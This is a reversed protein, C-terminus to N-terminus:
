QFKSEDIQMQESKRGEAANRRARSLESEDLLEEEQLLEGVEEDSSSKDEMIPIRDSEPFKDDDTKIRYGFIDHEGQMGFKARLKMLILEITAKMTACKKEDLQVNIASVSKELEQQLAWFQTDVSSASESSTIVICSPVQSAHEKQINNKLGLSTTQEQDIKSAVRQLKLTQDHLFANLSGYIKENHKKITEDILDNYFKM